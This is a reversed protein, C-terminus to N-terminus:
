VAAEDSATWDLFAKVAPSAHASTVVGFTRVVPYSGNAISAVSPTVGDIALNTVRSDVMMGYGYSFYGIAGATSRVADEMEPQYDLTAAYRSIALDHGFVDRRMIMKGADEENRDLVIIQLDAGGLEQWNTYVGSYIGRVQEITLGNIGASPHVVIAIGDLALPTYVLDSPLEGAKLDRSIMAVEFQGSQVAQIGGGTHFSPLYQWTIRDSGYADTLMKVVPTCAGSGWFRVLEPEPEPTTSVPKEGCAALVAICALAALGLAIRRSM